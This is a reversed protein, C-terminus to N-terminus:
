DTGPPAVSLRDAPVDYQDRLIAATADSTAVVACSEALAARESARFRRAAEPEM